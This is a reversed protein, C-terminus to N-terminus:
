KMLKPPDLSTQTLVSSERLLRFTFGIEFFKESLLSMLPEVVFNGGHRNLFGVLVVFLEFLVLFMTTDFVCVTVRNDNGPM